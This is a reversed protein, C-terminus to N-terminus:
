GRYAFFYVWLAAAGVVVGAAAVTGTRVTSYCAKCVTVFLWRQCHDVCARHGCSPCRCNAPKGCYHCYM